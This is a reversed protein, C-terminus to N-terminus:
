SRLELLGKRAHLSPRHPPSLPPRRHHPDHFAYRTPISSPEVQAILFPGVGLSPLVTCVTTNVHLTLVFIYIYIDRLRSKVNAVPVGSALEKISSSFARNKSINAEKYLGDGERFCVGFDDGEMTRRRRTRMKEDADYIMCLPAHGCLTCVLGSAYRMM